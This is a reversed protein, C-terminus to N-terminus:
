EKAEWITIKYIAKDYLKNFLENIYNCFILISGALVALLGLMLIIPMFGLSMFRVLWAICFKAKRKM